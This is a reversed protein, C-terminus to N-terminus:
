IFPNIEEMGPISFCDWLQAMQMDKNQKVRSGLVNQLGYATKSVDNFVALMSPQATKESSEVVFDIMAGFQEACPWYFALERLSDRLSTLEFPIVSTQEEWGSTWLTIM